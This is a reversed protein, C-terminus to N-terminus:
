PVFQHLVAITSKSKQPTCRLFLSRTIKLGFYNRNQQNGAAAPRAAPEPVAAGPDTAGDGSGGHRDQAPHLRRPRGETGRQRAGQLRSDAGLRRRVGAPQVPPRQVGRGRGARPRVGPPSDPRYASQGSIQLLLLYM